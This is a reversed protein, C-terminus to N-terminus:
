VGCIWASRIDFLCFGQVLCQFIHFDIKQIMYNNAFIRKVREYICSRTFEALKVRMHM